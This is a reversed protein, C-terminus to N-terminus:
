LRPTCVRVYVDNGEENVTRSQPAGLDISHRCNVIVLKWLAGDRIPKPYAFEVDRQTFKAHRM